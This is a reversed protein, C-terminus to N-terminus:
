FSGPTGHILPLFQAFLFVDLVIELYYEFSSSMSRLSFFLFFFFFLFGFGLFFFFLCVFLVVGVFFVVGFVFFFVFFFFVFFFFFFLFFFGCVVVFFFCFFITHSFRGKKRHGALVHPFTDFFMEHFVWPSSFGSGPALRLRNRVV